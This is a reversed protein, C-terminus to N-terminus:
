RERTPASQWPEWPFKWFRMKATRAPVIRSKAQGRLGLLIFNQRALLANAIRPVVTDEYGLVGPFLDEGSRLKRILNARMEDKVTRSEWGAARLAGLTDPRTM